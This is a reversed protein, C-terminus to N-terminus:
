ILWEADKEQKWGRKKKEVNYVTKSINWEREWIHIINYNKFNM